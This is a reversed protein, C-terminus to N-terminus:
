QNSLVSILNSAPLQKASTNIAQLQKVVDFVPMTWSNRTDSSISYTIGDYEVVIGDAGTAGEHVVFLDTCRYGAHTEEPGSFPCRQQPFPNAAPRGTGAGTRHVALGGSAHFPSCGGWYYLIGEISRTNFSISVRKGAFAPLAKFGSARPDSNLRPVVVHEYLEEVFDASLFVGSVISKRGIESSRLQVPAAPHGCLVTPSILRYDARLTPAFCFGYLRAKAAADNAATDNAAPKDGGSKKQKTAPEIIQETSLGFRILYGIVGQFLELSVDEPAYNRFRSNVSQLIFLLQVPLM